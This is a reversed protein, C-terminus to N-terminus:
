SASSMAPTKGSKTNAIKQFYGIAEDLSIVDAYKQNMDFLNMAHAAEHRDFTCEEVVGMRFRYFSGELVAARVCGSTSEGCVIVTDIDRHLLLTKLATDFFCSAVVKRVILDGSQPAVEEVIQYKMKRLHPPESTGPKRKFDWDEPIDDRNTSYVVPIGNTRAVQLLEKIKYVAQWGELGCSSPWTKVSELLPLPKDGVAGYYVDVILLAPREGFGRRKKASHLALHQKDRETLFKDWVPM